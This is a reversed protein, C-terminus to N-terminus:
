NYYTNTFPLSSLKCTTWSKGYDWRNIRTIAEGRQKSCSCCLRPRWTRCMTIYTNLQIWYKRCVVYIYIYIHFFMFNEFFVSNQVWLKLLVITLSYSWTSSWRYWLGCQVWFFTWLHYFHFRNNNYRDLAKNIMSISFLDRFLVIYSQDLDQIQRFFHLSRTYVSCFRLDM